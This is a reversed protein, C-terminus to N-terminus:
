SLLGGQWHWLWLWHWHRREAVDVDNNGGEERWMVLQVQKEEFEDKWWRIAKGTRMSRARVKKDDGESVRKL